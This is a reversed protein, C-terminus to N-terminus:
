NTCISILVLIPLCFLSQDECFQLIERNPPWIDYRRSIPRLHPSPSLGVKAMRIKRSQRFGVKALGVKVLFIQGVKALRLQGVKALGTQALELQWNHGIKTLTKSHTKGMPAGGKQTPAGFPTPGAPRPGLPSPASLPQGSPHPAVPFKMRQEREPPKRTSNQHHKSTCTGQFTCTQFERATTHSGRRGPRTSFFSRHRSLSSFSRFKPRDPPPPGTHACCLM